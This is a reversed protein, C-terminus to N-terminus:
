QEAPNLKPRAMAIVVPQLMLSAKRPTVTNDPALGV